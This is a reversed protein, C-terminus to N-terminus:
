ARPPARAFHAGHARGVPGEEALRMFFPAPRLARITTGDTPGALVGNAGCDQGSCGIGLACSAGHGNPRDAGSQKTACIEGRAALAFDSAAAFATLLPLIPSLALAYAAALAVVRRCILRYM